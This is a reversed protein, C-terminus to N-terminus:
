EKSVFDVARSLTSCEEPRQSVLGTQDDFTGIAKLDFDAPHQNLRSDPRRCEDGFQRIAVGFNPALMPAYYQEAVKDFVSVLIMKM